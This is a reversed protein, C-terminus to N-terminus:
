FFSTWNTFCLLRSQPRPPLSMSLSSSLLLLFLLLLLTQFIDVQQTFWLSNRKQKRQCVVLVPCVKVGRNFGGRERKRKWCSRPPVVNPFFFILFFFFSFFYMFRQLHSRSPFDTAEKKISSLFLQLGNQM